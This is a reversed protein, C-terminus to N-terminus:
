SLAAKCEDTRVEEQVSNLPVDFAFLYSLTMHMCQCLLLMHHHWRLVTYFIPEGQKGDRSVGMNIARATTDNKTAGRRRGHSAAIM